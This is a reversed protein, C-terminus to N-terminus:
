IELSLRSVHSLKMLILAEQQYFELKKRLSRQGCSERRMAVVEKSGPVNSAPFYSAKEAEDGHEISRAKMAHMDLIKCALQQGTDRKFAMHVRGYAGSGLVRPTIIYHDKFQQQLCTCITLLSNLVLVTTSVRMEIRQLYSFRNERVCWASRFRLYLGVTVRLVDGDSLLFSSNKRGMPYENWLTGNLSLDQAYVLPPIEQTDDEDFLITYIRLHKNSIFPNQIM